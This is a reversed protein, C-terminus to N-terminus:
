PDAPRSRRAVLAGHPRPPSWRVAQRPVESEFRTIAIARCRPEGGTLSDGTYSGVAVVCWGTWYASRGEAIFGDRDAAVIRLRIGRATSDAAARWVRMVDTTYSLSDTQYAQQGAVLARLEGKITAVVPLDAVADRLHRALFYFTVVAAAVFVATIVLFRQTHTM